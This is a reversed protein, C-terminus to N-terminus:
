GSSTGEHVKDVARRIAGVLDNTIIPKYVVEVIGHEALTAPLLIDSFGTFLLIPVHPAAAHIKKALDLGSMKPMVQDTIVLDLHKMNEMFTHFGEEGNMALTVKFGLKPLALDAFHLVAIDDDVFLIQEGGGRIEKGKEMEVVKVGAIRPIFVDFASGAGLRSEATVTGGHDTVIGHVVALGMGSGEGPGKTTFFPDFARALVKKAMGHGTDRVSLRVYPGPKMGPFKEVERENLEDDRVIIEIKGPKNKLAYAANTIFNTIVQHMQAANAMIAGSHIDASDIIEITPPLSARMFKIVERAIIHLYLPNKEQGSQRSFALIQRVLEKARNAAQLVEKLDEHVFSDAPVERLALDTLGIIGALINNFDHAIGGALAGLSELRQSHQLEQELRVRQEREQIRLTIDGMTGLLTKAAGSDDSMVVGHDEIHKIEGSKHVIRYELHYKGIKRIAENIRTIVRPYDEPSIRDRWGKLGAQTLERATFGTMEEVEGAWVMEQTKLNGEYMSIGAQMPLGDFSDAIDYKGRAAAGEKRRAIIVLRCPRHDSPFVDCVAEVPMRVGREGCMVAEFVTTQHKLIGDLTKTAQEETEFAFIAQFATNALMDPSRGLWECACSNVEKLQVAEGSPGLEFIFVADQCANILFLAESEQIRPVQGAMNGRLPESFPKWSSLPPTTRARMMLIELAMFLGDGREPAVFVGAYGARRIDAHLEGYLRANTALLVPPHEKPLADCFTAYTRLDMDKRTVEYVICDTEHAAEMRNLSPSCLVHEIVWDAQAEEAFAALADKIQKRTFCVIKIPSNVVNGM